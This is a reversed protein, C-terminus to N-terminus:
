AKPYDGQNRYIFGINYLSAVEGKKFGTKEALTKAQQAYNMAKNYDGTNKYQRSLLNLTKVKNTDNSSTELKLNLTQLQRLLSDIQSNSSKVIQPNLSQSFCFYSALALASTLFYKLANKM